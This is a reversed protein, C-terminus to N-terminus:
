DAEEHEASTNALTNHEPSNLNTLHNRNVLQAASAASFIVLISIFISSKKKKM